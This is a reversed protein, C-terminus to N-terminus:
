FDYVLREYSTLYQQFVLKLFKRDWIVLICDRTYIVVGFEVDLLESFGCNGETEYKGTM